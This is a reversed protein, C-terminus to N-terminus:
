VLFIVLKQLRSLWQCLTCISHGSLETAPLHAHSRNSYFCFLLLNDCLALPPGNQMYLHCWCQRELAPDVFNAVNLWTEDDDDDDDDDDIAAAAATM